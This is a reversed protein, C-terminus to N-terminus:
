NTRHKGLEAMEKEHKLQDSYKPMIELLTQKNDM